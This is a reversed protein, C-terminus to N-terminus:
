GPKLIQCDRKMLLSEDSRSVVEFGFRKYLSVAPNDISVSLSISSQGCPSELLHTLLQTGIGQGRYEPFVAIGLEPTDDDVYGYGKNNRTLLRLWVAGVPKETLFDIVMFGCDGDSGWDQVYRALEPLYIVERPLPAQGEPLYLAQYLMEWLFPEDEEKLAQIIWVM